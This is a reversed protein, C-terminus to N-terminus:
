NTYNADPARDPPLSLVFVSGGGPRAFARARGHIARPRAVISRLGTSQRGGAKSDDAATGPWGRPAGDTTVILRARGGPAWEWRIAIQFRGTKRLRAAYQQIEAALSIESRQLLYVLDRLQEVLRRLRDPLGRAGPLLDLEESEFIIASLEAGVTDHIDRAIRARERGLERQLASAREKIRTQQYVQILLMAIVFSGAGYNFLFPLDAHSRRM